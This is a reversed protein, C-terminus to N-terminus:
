VEVALGPSLAVLGVGDLRDRLAAFAEEVADEEGALAVLHSAVTDLLVNGRRALEAGVLVIVAHEAWRGVQPVEGAVLLLPREGDADILLCRHGPSWIQAPRIDEDADLLRQAPRPRWGVADNLPHNGSFELMLDAGGALEARDLAQPAFGADVIVIQGGIHIRFSTAGFWTIKM